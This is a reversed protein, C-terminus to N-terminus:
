YRCLVERLTEILYHNLAFIIESLHQLTLDNMSLALRQQKHNFQLETSGYRLVEIRQHM